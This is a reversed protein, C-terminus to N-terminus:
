KLAFTIPVSYWVNVPKGGQMGPKWGSLLNLVRIAENDLLPDVGHLVSVNYVSGDTKVAFRCIVRGQINKDKAEKPYVINKYVFDMLAQDGGPYVPMEEVVVFIDEPVVESSPANKVQSGSSHRSMACASIVAMIIAAVPLVILIKFDALRSSRKKTMMIMRKKILTPNSFNNSPIFIRTKLVHNLLLTQYSNVPIGSKLYDEDAQFEHISRLSRNLLHVAPNFWQLVKLSEVLIIDVYHYYKLHNMEHKIIESAEEASVGANIFIHGFASFASSKLGNFRVLNGHRNKEKGILLLLRLIDALFKIGFIVVGSIYIRFLFLIAGSRGNLILDSASSSGTATVIIESLSRGFYAVAGNENIRITFLPFLFSSVLSVLIFLRNRTYMTDRSLFLFYILYFGALYVATKVM